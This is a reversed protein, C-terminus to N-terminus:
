VTPKVFDLVHTALYDSLLADMAFMVVSGIMMLLGIHYFVTKYLGGQSVKLAMASIVSTMLVMAPMMMAMFQPDIPTIKLTDTNVEVTSVLEFFIGTLKNMLGFVALTLAHLVIIITEFTKATQARKARLENIKVTIDAVYNGAVNMDGGKDMAYSIVENGNAIIQSGTDRSFLEFGLKQEVRHKIRNKFHEIHAQLPGFDSRLVAELTGGVSGLTAYIEGFHRIFEPYWENVQKIKQEMKRAILGPYLLPASAIGIILTPSLTQTMLLAAGIGAGAGIAVYVKFRFKLDADASAYGLKDRPFMVYMMFVFASMSSTVGIFSLLLIGESNEQGMLMSMISNAAIMFAATSMLTYFMELFLKENELKQEYVIVYSTLTSRLEDAFFTRLADGLRIVQAVKILLQKLHDNKDPSVKEAIMELARSVGYGWGVGLQYVEKFADTYRGYNTDRATRILDIGGIEGTSISYLFAVFYVFKEDSKRLNSITINKFLPIQIM